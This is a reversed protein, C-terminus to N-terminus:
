SWGGVTGPEASRRRAPAGALRAGSAAWQLLGFVVIVLAELGLLYIPWPGLLDFPTPGVPKASLYLFNTGLSQNVLAIVAAFANLLLAARLWAGRTIPLRLGVVLLLPAIVTLGHEVFYIVFRFHPLGVDLEPTLLAPLTGALAFFYLPEVARQDLTLLGCVALMAALDCLHLPLMQVEYWGQWLAVANEVVHASVLALAVVRRISSAAAAGSRALAIAILAALAVAALATWHDHGFLRFGNQMVAPDVM